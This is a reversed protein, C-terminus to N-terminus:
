KLTELTEMIKDLKGDQRQLHGHIEGLLMEAKDALDQQMDQKDSQTMNADLNQIGIIFSLIGLIDVFTLEGSSGSGIGSM